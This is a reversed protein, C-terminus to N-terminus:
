IIHDYVKFNLNVIKLEEYSKVVTSRNVHLIKALERESPLVYDM